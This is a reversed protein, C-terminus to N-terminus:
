FFVPVKAFMSGRRIEVQKIDVDEIFKGKNCKKNLDMKEISIVKDKKIKYRESM